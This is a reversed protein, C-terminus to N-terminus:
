KVDPKLAVMRRRVESKSAFTRIKVGEDLELLLV